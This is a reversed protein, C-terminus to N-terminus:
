IDAFGAGCGSTDLLMRRCQAFNTESAAQSYSHRLVSRLYKCRGNVAVLQINLQTNNISERLTQYHTRTNIPNSKKKQRSFEDHKLMDM